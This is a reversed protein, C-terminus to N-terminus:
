RPLLVALPSPGGAIGPPERPHSAAQFGLPVRPREAEPGSHVGPLALDRGCAVSGTGLRISGARRTQLPPAPSATRGPSAPLCAARSLSPPLAKPSCAQCAGPSSSGMLRTEPVIIVVVVVWLRPSRRRRSCVREAPPRAGAALFVRAFARCANRLTEAPLLGWWVFAASQSRASPGWILKLRFTPSACLKKKLGTM